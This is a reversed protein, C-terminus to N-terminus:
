DEYRPVLRRPECGRAFTSEVECPVVGDGMCHCCFQEEDQLSGDVRTVVVMLRKAGQCCPCPTTAKMM